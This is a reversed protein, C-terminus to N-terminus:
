LSQGGGVFVHVYYVSFCILNDRGRLRFEPDAVHPPGLFNEPDAVEHLGAAANWDTLLQFM